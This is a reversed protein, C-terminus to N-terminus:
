SSMPGMPMLPPLNMMDDSMMQDSGSNPYTMGETNSSVSDVTVTDDDHFWNISSMRYGEEDCYSWEFNDYLYPLDANYPDMFNYFEQNTYVEGAGTFNGSPLIDDAAHGECESIECRPLTAANSGISNWDCVVGTDSPTNAPHKYGWTQDFDVYGLNTLIRKWNMLREATTHIPWFLPDYPANSTYLEGVYAPSCLSQLVLHWQKDEHHPELNKIRYRFEKTDYYIMPSVQDIWHLVDTENLISYASREDVVDSPCSCSCSENDDCSSPCSAYGRRWLNKFILLQVRELSYYHIVLRQKTAQHWQGGLMVHVPGHTDGNLCEHMDTLTNSAFCQFMSQCDPFSSYGANTFNFVKIWRTLFPTPNMNWPSRLLGHANTVPSFAGANAMIPTYAWRGESVIHTGTSVADSDANAAKVNQVPGFWDPDFIKSELWDSGFEAADISYDWYPVTVVPDIAQLVQELELTFSMHHVMLGAGDHWHDCDRAAAGALHLRAFYSIHKYKTGFKIRGEQTSVHYVTHLAALFSNRDDNQLSRIERRVYKVMVEGKVIDSSSSDDRRSRQILHVKYLGTSSFTYRVKRGYLKTPDGEFEWIYVAQANFSLATTNTAEFTTERYPEIVKSWPYNTIPSEVTYSNYASFSLESVNETLPGTDSSNEFSSVFMMPLNTENRPSTHSRVLQTILFISIISLSCIVAKKMTKEQGNSNGLVTGRDVTAVHESRNQTGYCTKSYMEIDSDEFM